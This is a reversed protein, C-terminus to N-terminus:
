RAFSLPVVSHVSIKTEKQLRLNKPYDFNNLPKRSPKAYFITYNNLTRRSPSEHPALKLTHSLTQYLVLGKFLIKDRQKYKKLLQRMYNDISRTVWQLVHFSDVVPVANPFHKDVYSIYPNYM